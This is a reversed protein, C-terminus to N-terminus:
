LCHGRGRGRRRRKVGGRARGTTMVQTGQMGPGEGQGQTGVMGMAHGGGLGAFSLQAAGARSVQGELSAWSASYMMLFAPSSARGPPAM